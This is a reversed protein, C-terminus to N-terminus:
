NPCITIKIIGSYFVTVTRLLKTYCVNYSTIRITAYQTTYIVTDGSTKYTGAQCFMTTDSDGFVFVFNNDFNAALGQYPTM